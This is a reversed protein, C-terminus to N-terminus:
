FGWKEGDVISHSCDESRKGLKEKVIALLGRCSVMLYSFVDGM